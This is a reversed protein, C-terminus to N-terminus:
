YIGDEVSLNTSGCFQCVVTSHYEDGVWKTNANSTLDLGCDPCIFGNIGFPGSGLSGYCYRDGSRGIGGVGANWTEYPMAVLPKLCNKCGVWHYGPIGGVLVACRLRELWLKFM